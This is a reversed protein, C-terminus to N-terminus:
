SIQLNEIIKTALRTSLEDKHKRILERGGPSAFDSVIKWMRCTKGLARAAFAIGYGEMDVLDWAKGLSHRHSPDHVPFDSSILRGQEGRLSLHPVTFALCEQSKEDLTREDIPIYKGVTDISRLEGLLLEERLSGALGVNWVEECLHSYKAVAMQAAHIGVGSIAIYGQDFQYLCVQEGESWISTMEGDIPAAATLRLLAKAEAVQAFIILAKSM